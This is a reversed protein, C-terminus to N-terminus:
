TIGKEHDADAIWNETQIEPLANFDADTTVLVSGNRIALTALIIDTMSLARGMQRLRVYLEGYRRSIEQDLVEITVSDLLLDLRRNYGVPDSTQRIGAQLECLVPICTSVPAKSAARIIRERIQSVRNIAEGLHNTDLLYRTTM